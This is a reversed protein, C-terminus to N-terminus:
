NQYSTGNDTCINFKIITKNVKRTVHLRMQHTAIENSIKRNAYRAYRVTSFTDMSIVFMKGATLVCPERTRMLM